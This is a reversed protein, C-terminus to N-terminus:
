WAKRSNYFEFSEKVLELSYIDVHEGIKACISKSNVTISDYKMKIIEKFGILETDESRNKTYEYLGIKGDSGFICFEKLGVISGINDRDIKRIRDEKAIYDIETEVIKGTIMDYLTYKQGEKYFIVSGVSEMEHKCDFQKEFVKKGHIDYVDFNTGRIAVFYNVTCISQFPYIVANLPKIDQYIGKSFFLVNGALDCVIIESKECIKMFWYEQVKKIQVTESDFANTGDYNYIRYTSWEEFIQEIRFHCRNNDDEGLAIWRATWFCNPYDSVKDDIDIRKLKGIKGIIKGGLSTYCWYEEEKGYRKVMFFNRCKILVDGEKLTIGHYYIESKQEGDKLFNSYLWPCVDKLTVRICINLRLYIQKTTCNLLHNELVTGTGDSYGSGYYLVLDENGCKKGEFDYFRVGYFNEIAVRDKFIRMVEMDNMRIEELM